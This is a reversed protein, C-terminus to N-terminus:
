QGAADTARSLFVYNFRCPALFLLCICTYSIEMIVNGDKSDIAIILFHYRNAHEFEKRFMHLVKHTGLITRLKVLCIKGGIKGAPCSVVPFSAVDVARHTCLCLNPSRM